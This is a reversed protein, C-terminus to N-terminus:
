PFVPYIRFLKIEYFYFISLNTTEIKLRYSIEGENKDVCM